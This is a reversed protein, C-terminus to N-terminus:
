RKGIGFLREVKRSYADMKHPDGSVDIAEGKYHYSGSVHVSSVGGFHPNEGVHLGMQQAIKGLKVVTNPGAAVHVHDKHGDWVGSFTQRGDVKTGNKVAYGPGGSGTNHILELLKGSGKTGLASSLVPSKNNDTGGGGTSITRSPSTVTKTTPENPNLIGLKLLLNNPNRSAILNALVVRKMAEPDETTRTGGGITVTSGKSSGTGTSASLAGGSDKNKLSNFVNRANKARM